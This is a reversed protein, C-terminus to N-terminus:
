SSASNPAHKLLKDNQSDLITANVSPTQSLASATLSGEEAGDVRDFPFSFSEDSPKAFAAVALSGYRNPEPKTHTPWFRKLNKKEGM